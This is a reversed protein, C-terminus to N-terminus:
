YELPPHLWHEPAVSTTATTPTAIAPDTARSPRRPQPPAAPTAHSPRRPQPPAAPTALNPHRPRTARDPHHLPTPTIRDLHRRQPPSPAGHHNAVQNPHRTPRCCTDRSPSLPIALTCM